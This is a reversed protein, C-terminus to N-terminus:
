KSTGSHESAGSIDAQGAHRGGRLGARSLTSTRTKDQKGHEKRHGHAIADGVLETILCYYVLHARVQTLSLKTNLQTTEKSSPHLCPYAIM